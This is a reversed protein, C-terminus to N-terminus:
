ERTSTYSYSGYRNAYHRVPLGSMVVGITRAGADALRAGAERIHSMRTRDRMACLVTADAQNALVLSESAALVPPTDILIYSYKQRLSDLLTRFEGNHLLRHPNTTLMGAPLVDLQAFGTPAIAQDLNAEGTVVEAVGPSLQVDFMHHLDPARLDGDILLIPQGTTRALSMALHTAVSTKGESSVASAVALVQVDHMSEALVLTTRLGDISEEFLQRGLLARKSERRGSTYAPLAAIEGLIPMGVQQRIEDTSNVRKVTWEWGVALGFPLCLAIALALCM